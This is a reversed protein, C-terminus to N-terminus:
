LLGIGRCLGTGADEEETKTSPKYNSVADGEPHHDGELSLAVM